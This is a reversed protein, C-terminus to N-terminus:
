NQKSSNGEEPEKSDHGGEGNDDAEQNVNDKSEVESHLREFEERLDEKFGEHDGGDETMDQKDSSLMAMTDQGDSGVVIGTWDGLLESNERRESFDESLAPAQSAQSIAPEIMSSSIDSQAQESITRNALTSQVSVTVERPEDRVEKTEEVELEPEPEELITESLPEPQKIQSLNSDPQGIYSAPIDINQFTDIQRNYPKRAGPRLGQPAIQLISMETEETEVTNPTETEEMLPTMINGSKKAMNSDQKPEPSPPPPAPSEANMSDEMLRKVAEDTKKLYDKGGEGDNDPSPLTLERDISAQKSMNELDLSKLDSHSPETTVMSEQTNPSPAPAKEYDAENVQPWPEPSTVFSFDRTPPVQSRLFSNEAIMMSTNFTNADTRVTAGSMPKNTSNSPTQQPVSTNVTVTNRSPDKQGDESLQPSSPPPPVEPIEFRVSRGRSM